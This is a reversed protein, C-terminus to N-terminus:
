TSQTHLLSEQDTQKVSGTLADIAMEILQQKEITRVCVGDIEHIVYNQMNIRYLLDDMILNRDSQRYQSEQRYNRKTKLLYKVVVLGDRTQEFQYHTRARGVTNILEVVHLENAPHSAHPDITLYM